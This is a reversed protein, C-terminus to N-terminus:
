GHLWPGRLWGSADYDGMCQRAFAECGALQGSRTAWTLSDLRIQDFNGSYHTEYVSHRSGFESGTADWILKFLKIRQQPELAAGRYYADILGKVRPDLLDAAGSVTVLPSGGLATEMLERVRKWIQPVQIRLASAYQLKPVVVGSPTREPDRAMAATITKLLHQLSVLEGLAAQIGRFSQTGNAQTGLSLLGIMLELKVALRIGSQFNYLNAFGSAAYFGTARKVDRYVLVDEWPILARDFILVSDNEDFRSSLPADFPSTAAAEYSPRCMLSLGPNDMRAFFVIAFDDAKGPELLASAVPAVFTANTLAGATALMKVGSVVAGRDPQGGGGVGGQARRAVLPEGQRVKHDETPAAAVGLLAAAEPLNPTVLDALPLLENRLADVADPALLAHASKSIMVTDLVVHRPAHRTLAAAVARVIAANALMGIKVADIRIDDFVADLQASVFGADPAHVGTVGRTNQATLATIVSAGYAGLASFTKLDAQIGAGGGSDSGAITLANPIPRTM